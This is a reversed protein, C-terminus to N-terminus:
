LIDEAAGILADAQDMASKSGPAPQLWSYRERMTLAAKIREEVTMQQVGKQRAHDSAEACASRRSAPIPTTTKM